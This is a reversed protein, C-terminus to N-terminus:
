RGDRGLLRSQLFGRAYWTTEYFMFDLTNADWLCNLKAGIGLEEEGAWFQIWVPFFDFLPVVFSVDGQKQEVGGWARCLARTEEMHQEIASLDTKLSDTHHIATTGGLDAVSVWRHSLRPKKAARSLIDYATCAENFGARRGDSCTIWGTARDLVAEQGLIHFTFSAEDHQLAFHEIMPQQDFTLFHARSQDYLMDYNSAM